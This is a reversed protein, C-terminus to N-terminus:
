NITVPLNIFLAPKIVNEYMAIATWIDHAHDNQEVWVWEGGVLSGSKAYQQNSDVFYAQALGLYLTKVEVTDGTDIERLESAVTINGNFKDVENLIGLILIIRDSTSLTTNQPDKPIQALLSKTRELLPQPFVRSLNLIIQEYRPVIDQVVKVAARLRNEEAKMESRKADALSVDKRSDEIQKELAEIEEKLLNVRFTMTEHQERWDSAEKSLLQRAEVWKEINTRPEDIKAEDNQAFGSSLPCLVVSLFAIKAIRSIKLLQKTM